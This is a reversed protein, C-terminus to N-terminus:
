VGETQTRGKMQSVLDSLWLCVMCFRLKSYELKQKKLYQIPFCFIRFQITILM